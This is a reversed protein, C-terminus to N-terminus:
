SPADRNWLVSKDIASLSGAGTLCMVRALETTMTDLVRRVGDAGDAALGTLVAKGVGVANAGMAIAKFADTGSTIACDVFLPVRDGVAERVRPLLRVPPVAFDVVTGGQHSVMLAAAGATTAKVADSTSLVGKVVFPLSTAAVYRAIADTSQPAMPAPAYGNKMGFAYSIDMGVAFAGSREAHELKKFIVDADRYPKVIKIAKVGTDVIAALEDDTGIGVLMAAGASAAGQATEVMGGPRIRDLASLATVMIPTRFATGFLTCGTDAVDPADLVRLELCLSDLYERALRQSNGPTSGTATFAMGKEALLKEADTSDGSM